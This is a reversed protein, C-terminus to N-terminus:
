KKGLGEDHPGLAIIWLEDGARQFVFRYGRTIRAEFYLRGSMRRVRLSPHRPNGELLVLQKYLTKRLSFPFKQLHKKAQPSFVINM